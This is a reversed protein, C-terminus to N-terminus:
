SKELWDITKQTGVIHNLKGHELYLLSHTPSWKRDITFKKEAIMKLKTRPHKYAHVVVLTDGRMANVPWLFKKISAIDIM